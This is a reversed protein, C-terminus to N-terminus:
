LAEDLVFYLGFGDITDKPPGFSHLEDNALYMRLVAKCSQLM